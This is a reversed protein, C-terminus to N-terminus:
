PLNLLYENDLQLQGTRLLELIARHVLAPEVGKQAVRAIVDSVSKPGESQLVRLSARRAEALEARVTSLDGDLQKRETVAAVIALIGFTRKPQVRNRDL